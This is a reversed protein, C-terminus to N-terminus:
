AILSETRVGTLREAGGLGPVTLLFSCGVLAGGLRRMLQCAASATGGTALVDDVVLVRAKDGCADAHVELTGSGYELVYEERETRWPLKGPKRVTILGAGLVVAMPAGLIFGRSEIAAVHTIADDRWPACLGSILDKFLEGDAIVPMIDMFKIGPSPFDPVIRLRALVRTRLVELDPPSHLM